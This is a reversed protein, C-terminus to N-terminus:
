NKKREMLEAKVVAKRWRQFQELSKLQKFFILDETPYLWSIAQSTGTEDAVLINWLNDSSSQHIQFRKSM